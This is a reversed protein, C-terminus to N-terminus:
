NLKILRLALRNNEFHERSLAKTFIDAVQDETKCLKICILGKEVNDRLFPHRVDIHKTRKHQVPNKAMNLAYAEATSLAVFNQKKTGWSILCSVLFHAMGSTSKRDVLYGTYDAYANGILDFNDGSPYYLVLDHTGILYRLIRKIVKLHSEKPSFQFRACLGVSFVIDPRSTTLYLLSGIMGRYMTENVPSGPEDLDLRTATSIPTDITKSSEMDFRKLLEKIYKQQSIMMGKPAQKVQLGLFFNLEGMVSMEFESGMLKAFEECLSDNTAGFIIDDFLSACHAPEKGTKESIPNQLNKRKYLHNRELQHLEDQIVTIWDADKLAENINKPEIQSLSASFAFANRSKSQKFEQILLLSWMKSLIHVKTSGTLCRFRITPLDLNRLTSDM